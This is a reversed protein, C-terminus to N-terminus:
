RVQLLFLNVATCLYLLYPTLHHIKRIIQPYTKISSLMGGTAILIIFIFASLLSVAMEISNLPTIQHIQYMSIVLYIFAAVSVLKHVTLILINLPKGSRTLWFGSLVIIIFFVATIILKEDM